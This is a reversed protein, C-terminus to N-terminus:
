RAAFPAPKIWGYLKFNPQGGPPGLRELARLILNNALGTLSDVNPIRYVKVNNLFWDPGDPTASEERTKIWVEQIVGIDGSVVYIHTDNRERDDGPNDLVWEGTGATGKAFLVVDGDTGAGKSSGTKM